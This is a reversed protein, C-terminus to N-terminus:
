PLAVGKALPVACRPVTPAPRRSAQGLRPECTHAASRGPVRDALRPNPNPNPNPDPDPDPEPNPEPKPKPNSGQPAYADENQTIVHRVLPHARGEEDLHARSARMLATIALHTFTPRAAPLLRYFAEDWPTEGGADPEGVVKGQALAETWIGDPGRYDRIGANTSIGAGTVFVCHEAALILEALKAVAERPDEAESAHAAARTRSASASSSREM